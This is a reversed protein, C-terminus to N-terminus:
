STSITYQEQWGKAQGVKERKSVGDRSLPFQEERKRSRSDLKSVQYTRNLVALDQISTQNIRPTSHNAKHSFPTLPNTYDPYTIIESDVLSFCFIM